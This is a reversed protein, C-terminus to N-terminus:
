KYFGIIKLAGNPLKEVAIDLYKYLHFDVGGFTIGKQLIVGPGFSAGSIEIQFKPTLSGDALEQFVNFFKYREQDM